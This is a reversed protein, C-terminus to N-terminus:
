PPMPTRELLLKVITANGNICAQALPPVGYLNATNVDAGAKLLLAVLEADDHFAAWHLATTGDVQALNVDVGTELLTRVGAQDHQEAADVLSAAAASTALGLSLLLLGGIIRSHM